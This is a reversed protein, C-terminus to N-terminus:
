LGLYAVKLREDNLAQKVDDYRTLVWARHARSWHVPSKQRLHAFFTYPDRVAAPAVINDRLSTM